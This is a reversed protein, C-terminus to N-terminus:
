ARIQVFVCVCLCVYLCVYVCVHVRMRMCMHVCVCVCARLCVCACVCVCVRMRMCVCMITFFLKLFHVCAHVHARRICCALTQVHIGRESILKDQGRIKAEAADNRAQLVALLTNIGRMTAAAESNIRYTMLRHLDEDVAWVAGGDTAGLTGSITMDAKVKPLPKNPPGDGRDINENPNPLQPLPRLPPEGGSLGSLDLDEPVFDGMVSYWDAMVKVPDPNATAEYSPLYSPVYSPVLKRNGFSSPNSSTTLYPQTSKLNDTVKFIIMDKKGRPTAIVGKNEDYYVMEASM